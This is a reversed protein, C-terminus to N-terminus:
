AQPDQSPRQCSSRALQQRDLFSSWGFQLPQEIHENSALMDLLDIRTRLRQHGTDRHQSRNAVPQRSAPQQFEAGEKAHELLFGVSSWGLFEAPRAQRLPLPLRGM